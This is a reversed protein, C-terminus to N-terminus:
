DRSPFSFVSPFKPGSPRFKLMCRWGTGVMWSGFSHPVMFYVLLAM